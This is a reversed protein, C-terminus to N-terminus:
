KKPNIVKKSKPIYVKKEVEAFRHTTAGLNPKCESIIENKLDDLMAQISTLVKEAFIEDVLNLETKIEDTRDNVANPTSIPNQEEEQKGGNATNTDTGPQNKNVPNAM